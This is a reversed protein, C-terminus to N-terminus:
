NWFNEGLFLNKLLDNNFLYGVLKTTFLLM